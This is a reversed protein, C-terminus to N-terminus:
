DRRLSGTVFVKTTGVASAPITFTDGEISTHTILNETPGDFEAITLVGTATEVSPLTVTLPGTLAETTIGINMWRGHHQLSFSTVDGDFSLTDSGWWGQLASSVESFWQIFAGSLGKGELLPYKVPARGQSKTIAM